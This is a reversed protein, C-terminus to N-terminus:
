VGFLGQVWTVITPAGFIVGIGVLAGIPWGWSIRGTMAVVALVMIALVAFPTAIATFNTVLSEAGTQFPNTAQAFTLAPVAICATLTLAYRLLNRVFTRPLRFSRNV